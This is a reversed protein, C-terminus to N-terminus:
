RDARFEVRRNDASTPELDPLPNSKGRGATRLAAVDIGHQEVLYQRVAAARRQSLRENYEASGVADTHGEILVKVGAMKIGEAMADLQQSASPELKASDFAFPVRLAISPAPPKASRMKFKQPNLIRAVEAPDVSQRAGVVLPDAAWGSLPLLAVAAM